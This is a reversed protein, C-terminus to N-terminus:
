SGGELKYDWLVVACFQGVDRVVLQALNQGYDLLQGTRTSSPVVIKQLVISPKGMLKDVMYSFSREKSTHCEIVAHNVAAAPVNGCSELALRRPPVLSVTARWSLLCPYKSVAEPPKSPLFTLTAIFLPM